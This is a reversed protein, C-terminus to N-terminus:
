TRVEPSSQIDFEDSSFQIESIEALVQKDIDYIRHKEEEHILRDIKTRTKPHSSQISCCDRYKRMSLEYTGFSKALEIIENKNFGILPRLVPIDVSQTISELNEMTQSAVQGLNEGTAIAQHGHERAIQESVRMAHRRFLVLEYEPPVESTGIEFPHYPAMYLNGSTTFRRLQDILDEILGELADFPDPYPYFHLFDVRCGRKMTLISAVPSDIGGSLQALVTGTTEVPLGQMGRHKEFFTYANKHLLHVHIAWDPDDLDVSLNTHRDIYAGLQENIQPTRLEFSKDTRQTNVAFTESEDIISSGSDLVREGIRDIDRDTTWCPAFWAIGPIKKLRNLVEDLHADKYLDVRIAGRIRQVTRYMSDPLSQSINDRLQREFAGRNQNKLGVEGYRILIEDHNIEKLPKCWEGSNMGFFPLRYM